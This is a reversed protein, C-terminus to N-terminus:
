KLPEFDDCTCQGNLRDRRREEYAWHITNYVVTFLESKTTGRPSSEVAKWALAVHMEADVPNQFHRRAQKEIYAKLTENRWLQLLRRRDM